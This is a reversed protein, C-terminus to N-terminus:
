KKTKYLEILKEMESVLRNQDYNKLESNFQSNLKQMFSKVELDIEHNEILENVNEIINELQKQPKQENYLNEPKQSLDKLRDKHKQFKDQKVQIKEQVTETPNLSLLKQRSEEYKHITMENLEKKTERFKIQSLYDKIIRDCKDAVKKGVSKNEKNEKIETYNALEEYWFDGPIHFHEHIVEAVWKKIQEIESDLKNIEEKCETIANDINQLLTEKSIDEDQKKNESFINKIWSM